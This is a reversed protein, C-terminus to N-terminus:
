ASRPRRSQHMAGDRDGGVSVVVGVCVGVSVSVDISIGMGEARGPVRGVKGTRLCLTLRHYTVWCWGVLKVRIGVGVGVRIVSEVQVM